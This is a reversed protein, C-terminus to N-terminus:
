LTIDKDYLVGDQWPVITAGDVMINTPTVRLNVTTIKGSETNIGLDSYLAGGSNPIVFMGSINQAPVLCLNNINITDLNAYTGLYEGSLSYRFSKSGLIAIDNVYQNGSTINFRLVSMAHNFTMLISTDSSTLGFQKSILLDQIVSNSDCDFDTNQVSGRFELSDLTVADYPYFAIIDMVQNGYPAHIDALVRYNQYVGYVIEGEQHNNNYTVYFMISDGDQFGEGQTARTKMDGVQATIKVLKGSGVDEYEKSCSVVMFLIISMMLILSRLNRM